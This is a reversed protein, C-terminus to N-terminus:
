GIIKFEVKASVDGDTTKVMATYDGEPAEEDWTVDKSEDPALETIVQASMVSYNEGTDVNEIELGLSADPFTLTQDGINKVTFTVSEGVDYTAENTTMVLVENSTDTLGDGVFNEVGQQADQVAENDQIRDGVIEAGRFLGSFFVGVGLGIAVLVIAIIAVWTILGMIM